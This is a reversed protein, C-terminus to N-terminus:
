DVEITPVDGASHAVREPVPAQPPDTLITITKVKFNTM